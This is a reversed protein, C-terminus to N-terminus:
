YTLAVLICTKGILENIFQLDSLSFIFVLLITHREFKVRSAQLPSDAENPYKVWRQRKRMRSQVKSKIHKLMVIEVKM